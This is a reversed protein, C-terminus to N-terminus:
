KTYFWSLVETKQINCDLKGAGKTSSVTGSGNMLGFTWVWGTSAWGEMKMQSHLDAGIITTHHSEVM